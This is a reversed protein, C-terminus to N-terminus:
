FRNFAEHAFNSRASFSVPFLIVSAHGDDSTIQYGEFRRRAIYRCCSLRLSNVALFSILLFSCSHISQIEPPHASTLQWMCQRPVRMVARGKFLAKLELTLVHTWRSARAPVLSRSLQSVSHLCFLVVSSRQKVQSIRVTWKLVQGTRQSKLHKSIAHPWNTPEDCPWNEKFMTSSGNRDALKQPFSFDLQFFQWKVLVNLIPSMRAFCM